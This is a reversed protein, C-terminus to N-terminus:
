FLTLQIGPAPPAIFLSRCERWGRSSNLLSLEVLGVVSGVASRVASLVEGISSFGTSTFSAITHGHYSATASVIDSSSISSM